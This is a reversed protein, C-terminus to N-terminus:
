REPDHASRRSRTPAMAASLASTLGLRDAIETLLYARSHSTLGEGDSTVEISKATTNLNM